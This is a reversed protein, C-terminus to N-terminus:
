SNEKHEIIEKSIQFYFDSVSISAFLIFRASSKVIPEKNLSAHADGVKNRLDSISFISSGLNDLVNQILDYNKLNSQIKLLKNVEKKYVRINGDERLPNGLNKAVQLFTEELLTRSKTIVSLYDGNLLSQNAKEMIKPLKDSSLSSNDLSFDSINIENIKSIFVNDEHIKIICKSTKLEKNLKKLMKEKLIKNVFSDREGDMSKYILDTGDLNEFIGCVEMDTVDSVDKDLLYYKLFDNTKKCKRLSKLFYIMKNIRNEKDVYNKINFKTFLSDIDRHLLKPYIDGDILISAIDSQELFKYLNEEESM